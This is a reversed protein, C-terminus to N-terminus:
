VGCGVPLLCLTQRQRIVCSSCFLIVYCHQNTRDSPKRAKWCKELDFMKSSIRLDMSVKVRQSASSGDKEWRSLQLSACRLHVSSLLVSHM